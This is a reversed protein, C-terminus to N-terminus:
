NRRKRPTMRSRFKSEMGTRGPHGSPAMKGGPMRPGKRGVNNIYSKIDRASRQMATPAKKSNPLGGQGVKVRKFAM